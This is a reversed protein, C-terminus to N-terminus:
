ASKLHVHLMREKTELHSFTALRAQRTEGPSMPWTDSRASVPRSSAEEPPALSTGSARSLRLPSKPGSLRPKEVPPARVVKMEAEIQGM